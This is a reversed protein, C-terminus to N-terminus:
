ADDGHWTKMAAHGRASARKRAALTLAGEVSRGKTGLNGSSECRKPPTEVPHRGLLGPGSGYGVLRLHTMRNEVSLRAGRSSRHGYSETGERSSRGSGRM